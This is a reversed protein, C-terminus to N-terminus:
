QKANTSVMYYNGTSYNGSLDNFIIDDLIYPNAFGGGGLLGNLGYDGNPEGYTADRLWWRGGDRVRWDSANTAGGYSSSRMIKSTYNGSGNGASSTRYVGYATTFFSSYGAGGTKSATIAALVAKSMARWHYKSRPMVLDLGLPTGGNTETVTSVAPGATIFYFDYGGGDETMDVYMQLADTMIASKIWYWGSLYAPYNNHLEVGSAAATAATLGDKALTKFILNNSYYNKTGVTVFGRIYYTTNQTLGTLDASLSGTTIAGDIIKSGSVTPNTSTGWCVGRRIINVYSTSVNASFTATTNSINSMRINSIRPVPIKGVVWNSSNGTMQFNYLSYLVQFQGTNYTIEYNSPTFTGGTAASPTTIYYGVPDLAATGGSPTITVSGITENNMLGSAIFYSGGLGLNMPSGYFKQFYAATISLSAPTITSSATSLFISDANTSALSIAGSYSGVFATQSLRLYIIKPLVSYGVQAIAIRNSFGSTLSTSLEFGAPANIRLSDIIYQGSATFSYSVSAASPTGYTTTLSTLADGTKTIVPKKVSMVLETTDYNYKKNAARVRITLNDVLQTPIGSIDGTISNITLGTPLSDLLEYVIATGGTNTSPLPQNNYKYFLINPTPYSIDPPLALVNINTSFTYNCSGKIYNYDIKYIGITSLGPNFAGTVTSFSLGAPSSAYTGTLPGNIFKVEKLTSDMEDFRYGNYSLTTFNDNLVTVLVSRTNICGVGSGSGVVKYITTVTPTAIPNAILSNNLGTAPTWTYNTAGLANLSVPKGPCVITDRAVSVATGSIASTSPTLQNNGYGTGVGGLYFNDGVPPTCTLQVLKSIPTSNSSQGGAYLLNIPNVYPTCAGQILKSKPVTAEAVGGSYLLYIPNIYPSCAGQILLSKAVTAEAAGGAYILKDYELNNVCAGQILKSITAVSAAAGGKYLSPYDITGVNGNCDAIIEVSATVTQGCNGYTYTVTYVGVSSTNPTILGNKSNIKLNASSASFTGNTIGLLTVEQLTTLGTCIKSPYSISTVSSNSLVKVTVRTVERCGGTSGSATVIYTTSTSPNAVPNAIAANSLGTSPSWSYSTAGIGTTTLTVCNGLIISTDQITTIFPGTSNNSTLPNLFGFSSASSNGGLFINSPFPIPCVSANIAINGYSGYDGGKYILVSSDFTLGCTSAAISLTGYSGYNGGKYILVSSDFTLGCTSAAISLTGYSGYNGGKYILVSSDFSLPCSAAAISLAGYSGYNGGTYQAKVGSICSIFFLLFYYKKINM